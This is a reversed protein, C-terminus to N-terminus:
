RTHQAKATRTPPQSEARVSRCSRMAIIPSATEPRARSGTANMSKPAAMSSNKMPRDPKKLPTIWGERSM